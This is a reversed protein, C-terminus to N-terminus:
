TSRLGSEIGFRAELIEVAKRLRIVDDPTMSTPGVRLRIDAIEVPVNSGGIDFHVRALPADDKAVLEYYFDRGIPTLELRQYLGLGDWPEEGRSIAAHITRPQDSRGWFSLAYRRGKELSIEDWYVQLHEPLHGEARDMQVRVLGPQEPPFELAALVGESRHVQASRPLRKAFVVDAIEVPSGTRGLDFHLRAECTGQAMFDYRYVRWTNTLRVLEYIGMALWPEGDQIVCAGMTTPKEGRARFSITYDKGEEVALRHTVVQIDTPDADTSPPASAEVRIVEPREPNFGVSAQSRGHLHVENQQVRGVAFLPEALDVAAGSNGVDFVMRALDQSSEPRFDIRFYQWETTLHFARYDDLMEWPEQSQGLFFGIERPEDARAWFSLTYNEGAAWHIPGRVLQIAERRSPDHEDIEIRVGGPWQPLFRMRGKGGHEDLQWRVTTGHSADRYGGVFLVDSVGRHMLRNGELAAFTEATDREIRARLEDDMARRGKLKDAQWFINNRAEIGLFNCLDTFTERYKILDEYRIFAIRDGFRSRVADIALQNGEIWLKIWKRYHDEPLDFTTRNSHWVNVPDRYIWVLQTGYDEWEELVDVVTRTQVESIPKLLIRRKISWILPRLEEESRLFYNDYFENGPSETEVRLNPDQGIAETLASTGSRQMGMVMILKNKFVYTNDHM